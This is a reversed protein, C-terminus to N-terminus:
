YCNECSSSHDFRVCLIDDAQLRNTVMDYTVQDCGCDSGVVEVTFEYQKTWDVEFRDVGYVEDVEGRTFQRGDENSMAVETHGDVEVTVTIEHKFSPTMGNSRMIEWLDSDNDLGQDNGWDNLLDEVVDLRRTLERNAERVTRQAEIASHERVWGDSIHRCLNAVLQSDQDAVQMREFDAHIPALYPYVSEETIRVILRQEGIEAGIYYLHGGDSRWQGDVLPATLSIEDVHEALAALPLRIDNAACTFWEGEKTWMLGNSGSVRNGDPLAELETMTTM